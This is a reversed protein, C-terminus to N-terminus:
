NRVGLFHFRELILNFRKLVGAGVNGAVYPDTLAGKQQQSIETVPRTVVVDGLRLERARTM